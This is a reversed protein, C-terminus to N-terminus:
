VEWVYLGIFELDVSDYDKKLDVKLILCERIRKETDERIENVQVMEDVLQRCKLFTSQNSSVINDM